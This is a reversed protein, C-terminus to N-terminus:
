NLFASRTDDNEQVNLLFSSQRYSTGSKQRTGRAKHRKEQLNRMSMGADKTLCSRSAVPAPMISHLAARLSASPLRSSAVVIRRLRPRACAALFDPREVLSPSMPEYMWM